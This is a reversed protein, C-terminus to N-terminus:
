RKASSRLDLQQALADASKLREQVLPDAFLEKAKVYRRGEKSVYITRRAGQESTSSKRIRHGSKAM